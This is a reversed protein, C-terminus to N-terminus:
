SKKKMLTLINRTIRSKALSQYINMLAAYTISFYGVIKKMKGYIVGYVEQGVFLAQSTTGREKGLRESETKWCDIWSDGDM